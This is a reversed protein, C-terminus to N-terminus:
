PNITATFTVVIQYTGPEDDWTVNQKFTISISANDGTGTAVDGGGPLTVEGAPGAVKMANALKVSTNYSSGEWLTMFGNTNATDLDQATVSWSADAPTVDVTLTGGNTNEGIGPDLNWSSINAPATIEISQAIYTVTNDTSTSADNPNGVADHAKGAEITAIVTGDVTMGSVAVEYTTGSGTVDATTAGATGSLTVDGTAFDTVVENFVVTFNIPSDSTPDSQGAAQDITVTPGTTDYTVTNDTSSSPANPNNYADRAKGAEITAIVTGDGTMGSVAVEYNTGSGSVTATTAGATGSLTVDGTVFDTVVENFVVTFNIPSSATPDSQGVAQDITVTPGVSDITLTADVDDNNVIINSATVGTVAALMTEGNTPSAITDLTIIYQTSTSNVAISLGTFTATPSSYSATGNLTDGADYENPTTGNDQYIKVGAVNAPGTGTITVVMGTVTDTTGASSTVLTFSSVAQNNYSPGVTKSSPSTGDGVTTVAPKISMASMSRLCNGSFTTSSTDTTDSSPISRMAVVNRIGYNSGGSSGGWTQQASMTWYTAYTITRPNQNGTRTSNIIEVAQDNANVTLATAFAATSGIGTGGTYNKSDTIPTAQNVGTFVAAFVDNMVGTGGTITVVLNSNTAAQIGSENLYFLWTHQRYSGTEDTIQKTLTQGGYTVSATQSGQTNRTSSIAVVLLRNSGTNVTYSIAASPYAAAHYVNTWAQSNNIAAYAPAAPILIANAILAFLLLIVGAVASANKTPNRIFRDTNM